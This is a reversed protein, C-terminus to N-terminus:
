FGYTLSAFVRTRDYRRDLRDSDRKAFEVDLGTRLNAQFRYGVGAGFVRARDTRTDDPVGTTTEERYDLRDRGVIGRVDITERLQQTVVFRFGTTLYYPETPEFSYQVDRSVTLDLKTREAITHTLSGKIVLGSYDPIVPDLASFRRYGVALSGQVIAPAEMRISPLIRLTDSNREPSEDFRDTQHSATVAFTTLPTVYLELGGEISRTSSNLTQSLPVGDFFTGEAFELGTTRVDFVLGTKPSLLLRTGVAVTTETRPARVDLEVNLRERTDLLSALAYPQFWGFDMDVRGQATYDISREDDFEKYYVLGTAVTGSLLMKGGRLRAQLRPTVTMTFDRKPDTAENFINDDIGFNTVALTPNLGLPGLRIPMSDLPDVPVITQAYSVTTGLCLITLVRICALARM